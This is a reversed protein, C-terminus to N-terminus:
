EAKRRRGHPKEEAETAPVEPQSQQAMDGLLKKVREIEEASLTKVVEEATVPLRPARPAKDALRLEVGLEDRLVRVSHSHARILTQAVLYVTKKENGKMFALSYVERARSYKGSENEQKAFAKAAEVDAFTPTKEIAM